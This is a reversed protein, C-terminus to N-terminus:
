LTHKSNPGHTFLPENCGARVTEVGKVRQQEVIRDSMVVSMERGKVGANMRYWRTCLYRCDNGLTWGINRITPPSEPLDGLEDTPGTNLKYHEFSDYKPLVAASNM